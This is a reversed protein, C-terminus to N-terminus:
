RRNGNVSHPENHCGNRHGYRAKLRVRVVPARPHSSGNLRGQQALLMDRHQEIAVYEDLLTRGADLALYCSLHHTKGAQCFPCTYGHLMRQHVVSAISGAVLAARAHEARLVDYCLKCVTSPGHRELPREASVRSCQLYRRLYVVEQLAIDRERTLEAIQQVLQAVRASM